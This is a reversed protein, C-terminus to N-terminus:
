GGNGIEEKRMGLKRMGRWPSLFFFLGLAMSRPKTGHRNGSSM